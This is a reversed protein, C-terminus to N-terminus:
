KQGKAVSSMSIVKYVQRGDVIQRQVVINWLERRDLSELSGGDANEQRGLDTKDFNDKLIVHLYIGITGKAPDGGLYDTPKEVSPDLVWALEYDGDTRKVRHFYDHAAQNLDSLWTETNDAIITSAGNEPSGVVGNRFAPTYFDDLAAASGVYGPYAPDALKEQKYASLGNDVESPNVSGMYTNIVKLFGGEVFAVPDEYLDPFDAVESTFEGQLEKVSEHKVIRDGIKLSLPAHEATWTTPDNENYPTVSPSVEPSSPSSSAHDGPTVPATAAPPREAKVDDDGRQSLALVSGATLALAASSIAVAKRGIKRLRNFFSNREDEPRGNDVEPTRFHTNNPENEQLTM